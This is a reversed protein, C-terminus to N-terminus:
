GWAMYGSFGWVKLTFIGGPPESDMQNPGGLPLGGFGVKIEQCSVKDERIRRGM